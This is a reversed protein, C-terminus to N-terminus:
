ILGREKLYIRANEKFNKEGFKRMFIQRSSKLQSEILKKQQKFLEPNKNLEEAYLEIYDLYTLPVKKIRYIPIRITSKDIKSEKKM